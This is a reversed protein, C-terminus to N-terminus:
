VVFLFIYILILPILLFDGEWFLRGLSYGKLRGRLGGSGDSPIIYNYKYLYICLYM